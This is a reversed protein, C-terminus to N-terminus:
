KTECWGLVLGGSRRNATRRKTPIQCFGGSTNGIKGRQQGGRGPQRARSAAVTVRHQDQRPQQGGVCRGNRETSEQAQQTIPHM